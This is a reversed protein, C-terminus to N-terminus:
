VSPRWTIAINPLSLVKLLHPRFLPKRTKLSTVKFPITPVLDKEKKQTTGM